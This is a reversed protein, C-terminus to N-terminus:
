KKRSGGAVAPKKAGGTAPKATAGKPKSEKAAAPAKPQAKPKPAAPAKPEPLPAQDPHRVLRMSELEDSKIWSEIQDFLAGPKLGDLKMFKVYERFRATTEQQTIYATRSAEDNFDVADVDLEEVIAKKADPYFDCLLALAEKFGLTTKSHPTLTTAKGKDKGVAKADTTVAKRAERESKGDAKAEVVQDVVDKRVEPDEIKAVEKATTEDIKGTEVAEAVDPLGAVRKMERIWRIGGRNEKNLFKAQDEESMGHVQEMYLLHKATELATLPRRTDDLNYKAMLLRIENPTADVLVYPVAVFKVTEPNEAWERAVATMRTKGDILVLVKTGNDDHEYLKIPELFEGAERIDSIVGEDLVSTRPNPFDAHDTMIPTAGGDVDPFGYILTPDITSTGRFNERATDTDTTAM